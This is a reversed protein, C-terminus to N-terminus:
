LMGVGIYLSITSEFTSALGETVRYELFIQSNENNAEIQNTLSINFASKESFSQKKNKLASSIESKFDVGKFYKNVVPAISALEILRQLKEEDPVDEGSYLSITLNMMLCDKQELIAMSNDKFIIYERVYDSQMPINKSIRNTVSAVNNFQKIKETLDVSQFTCEYANVSSCSILFIFTIIKSLSFKMITLGIKSFQKKTQFSKLIGVFM